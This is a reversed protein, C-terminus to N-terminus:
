ISLAIKAYYDDIIGALTALHYVLFVVFFGFVWLLIKMRQGVVVNEENMQEDM